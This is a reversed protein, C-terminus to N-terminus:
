PTPTRLRDRACAAPRAASSGFGLPRVGADVGLYRASIKRRIAFRPQYIPRWRRIREGFLLERHLSRPSLIRTAYHACGTRPFPLLGGTPRLSDCGEKLGIHPRRAIGHFSTTM